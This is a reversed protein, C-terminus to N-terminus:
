SRVNTLGLAAPLAAFNDIVLDAAAAPDDDDRFERSRISRMGAARAGAVDERAADGVMVTASATTGLAALAASFLETAPKRWGVEASFTASDLWRALGLHSLQGRLSEVRYPANSCLGLRLGAGRLARLTEVVGPALTLGHWWAEQEIRMVEDVEALGLPHGLAAYAEAHLAAIDVERAAGSRSHEHVAAEVRQHVEGLLRAAPVREGPARILGAIRSYADSLAADPRTFTVLTLGYDILLAEVARGGLEASSM